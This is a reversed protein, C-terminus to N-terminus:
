VNGEDDGDDGDDIDGDDGDDIDKINSIAISYNNHNIQFFIKNNIQQTLFTYLQRRIKINCLQWCEINYINM